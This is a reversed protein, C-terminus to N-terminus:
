SADIAANLLLQAVTRLKDLTLPAEPLVGVGVASLNIMLGDKVAILQVDGPQRTRIAVETGDPWVQTTVEGEPDIAYLPLPVVLPGRTVNLITSGGQLHASEFAVGNSEVDDAYLLPLDALAGARWVQSPGLSSLAERLDAVLDQSRPGNVVTEPPAIVAGDDEASFNIGLGEPPAPVDLFASGAGSHAEHVVATMAVIGVAIVAVLYSSPASISKARPFQTM